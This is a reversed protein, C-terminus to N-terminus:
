VWIFSPEYFGTRFYVIMQQTMYLSLAITHRFKIKRRLIRRGERRWPARQFPGDLYYMKPYFCMKRCPLYRMLMMVREEFHPMENSLICYRFPGFGLHEKLMAYCINRMLHEGSWMTIFTVGWHTVWKAHNWSDLRNPFFVRSFIECIKMRTAEDTVAM